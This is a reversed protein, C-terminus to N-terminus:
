FFLSDGLRKKWQEFVKPGRPDPLFVLSREDAEIRSGPLATKPNRRIKEKQLRALFNEFTPRGFVSELTRRFLVALPADPVLWLPAVMTPLADAKFRAMWRNKREFSEFTRYGFFPILFRYEHASFLDKTRIELGSETVFYNLCARDKVKRGHRRKGILQLFGTVFTRGTFIFGSKLVLFLDWDSEKGSRKIALSGTVGVMRVFPVFRLLAVLSRVRKLRAVSVKDERIRELPLGDRGPLFYFGDRQGLHGAAVEEALTRMVEGIRYKPQWREEGDGDPILLHKWVEFGTLPMDFVDAYAITARILRTLSVM